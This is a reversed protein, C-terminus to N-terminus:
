SECGIGDRDRDFGHPDPPLVQFGRQSVDKCDLDGAGPPLCMDPYSPDCDNTQVPEPPAIEQPIPEPEAVPEPSPSPSTAIPTPVEEIPEIVAEPTPTPTPTGPPVSAIPISEVQPQTSTTSQGATATEAEPPTPSFAIIGILSAITLGGYIKTSKGRTRQRMDTPLVWKPNIVGLLMAPFTVLCIFAFLAAMTTSGVKFSWFPKKWPNIPYLSASATTLLPHFQPNIPEVGQLLSLPVITTDIAMRRHGDVGGTGRTM